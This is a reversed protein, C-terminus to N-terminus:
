MGGTILTAVIILFAAASVITALLAVFFVPSYQTRQRPLRRRRSTDERPFSIEYDRESVKHM